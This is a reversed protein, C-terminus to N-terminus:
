VTLLSDKLSRFQLDIYRVKFPTNTHERKNKAVITILPFMGYKQQFEGKEYLELYKRPNTKNYLDIELFIMRSKNNYKYAIIADPQCKYLKVERKFTIIEAGQYILEAYFDICKITHISPKKKYYYIHQQTILDKTYLLEKNKVLERLRRWAILEGQKAYSYFIKYAQKVTICGHEMVFNVIDFDKSTLM